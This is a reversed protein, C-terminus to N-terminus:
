SGHLERLRDCTAADPQGTDPLDNARQFTKLAAQTKPGLTGDEELDGCGLNALRAQIGGVDDGPPLAGLTLELEEDESDDDEPNRLIKLTGSAANCPLTVRLYGDADTTGSKVAGDITLQFRVNARPDGNAFALRLVLKGPVGKRRFRHKADTKVSVDKHRLDPIFVSDGSLLTNPDKCRSRLDANEPADWLTEWFLGNEDALSLICDGPSVVHTKPM